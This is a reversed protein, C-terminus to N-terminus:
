ENLLIHNYIIVDEPIGDAKMEECFVYGEYFVDETYHLEHPKKLAEVVSELTDKYTDLSILTNCQPNYIGWCFNHVYVEWGPLTKIPTRKLRVDFIVRSSGKDVSLQSFVRIYSTIHENDIEVDVLDENVETLKNLLDKGGIPRIQHNWVGTYSITKGDHTPYEPLPFASQISWKEKARQPSIPFAMPTKKTVIASRNVLTPIDKGKFNLDPNDEHKWKEIHDNIEKVDADDDFICSLAVGHKTHFNFVSM